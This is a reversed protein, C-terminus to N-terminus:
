RWWQHITGFSNLKKDVEKNDLYGPLEVKLVVGGKESQVNIVTVKDNLGVRDKIKDLDIIISDLKKNIISYHTNM